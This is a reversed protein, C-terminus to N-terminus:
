SRGKKAVANVFGLIVGVGVFIYIITFIKGGDTKPTLDGYGVTTLTISSFYFSDLWSWKEIMHYSYTGIALIAGAFLVLTRFEHDRFGHLISVIYKIVSKLPSTIIRKM